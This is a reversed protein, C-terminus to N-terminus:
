RLGYARIVEQRIRRGEEDWAELRTSVADAHPPISAILAEFQGDGRHEIPV